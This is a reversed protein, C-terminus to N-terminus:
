EMVKFFMMDCWAPSCLKKTKVFEVLFSLSSHQSHSAQQFFGVPSLFDQVTKQLM